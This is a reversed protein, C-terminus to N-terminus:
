FLIKVQKGWKWDPGRIVRTGVGEMIFRTSRNAPVAEM